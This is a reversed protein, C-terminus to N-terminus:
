TESTLRQEGASHIAFDRRINFSREWALLESVGAGFLSGFSQFPFQKKELMRGLLWQGTSM